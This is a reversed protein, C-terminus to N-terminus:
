SGGGFFLRVTGGAPSAGIILDDFGDGNIDGLRDVSHGLNENTTSSVFRAASIGATVVADLVIEPQPEGTSADWWDGSHAPGGYLLYAAGASNGGTSNGPAGILIDTHSDGNIDGASRAVRLAESNAGVLRVAGRANPTTLESFTDELSYNGNVEYFGPVLYVIGDGSREGPASVLFEEDGDGDLDGVAAVSTGAKAGAHAGTFTMGAISTVAISAQTAPIDRGFIVYVVGGSAADEPLSGILLDGLGDGDVDAGALSVGLRSDSAPGTVELRFNSDVLNGSPINQADTSLYVYVAGAQTFDAEATSIAFDPINDGDLDPLWTVATGVYTDHCLGDFELGLISWADGSDAEGLSLTSATTNLVGGQLSDSGLLLHAAGAINLVAACGSTPMGWTPNGILMDDIGDGNFDRRGAISTGLSGWYESVEGSTFSHDASLAGLTPGTILDMAEANGGLAIDNWGDDNLDGVGAVLDYAGNISADSLEAAVNGVPSCGAPTLVSCDSDIGDSCYDPRGPYIESNADDCDPATPNLWEGAPQSCSTLSGDPTGFGDGDGDLWWQFPTLDTADAWLVFEAEDSGQQDLSDIVTVRIERCGPAQNTLTWAVNGEADTHAPSEELTVGDLTWALTLSDLPEAPDTVQAHITVGIAAEFENEEPAPSTIEVTPPLNELVVIEVTGEGSAANESDARLTMTHPGLALLQESHFSLLGDEILFQGGLEGDVDSTVVYIADELFSSGCLSRINAEIDLPYGQLYEQGDDPQTVGVEIPTVCNRMENESYCALPATLLLCLTLASQLRLSLSDSVEVPM